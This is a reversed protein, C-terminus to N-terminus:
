SNGARISLVLGVLMGLLLLELWLCIRASRKALLRGDHVVEAICLVLYVVAISAYLPLTPSRQASMALLLGCVPYKLLVAHYNAVPGANVSARVAYWVALLGHLGLLLAVSQWPFRWAVLLFNVLVLILLLAIFPRTSSIRCLVRQPDELCDQERDCLDDWLRFEVFLLLALGLGIATENPNSIGGFVIAPVAMVLPLAIVLWVPFRTRFYVWYLKSISNSLAEIEM